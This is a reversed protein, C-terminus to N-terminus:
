DADGEVNDEVDAAPAEAERTDYFVADTGGWHYTLARGHDDPHPMGNQDVGDYGVSYLVCGGRETRYRFRGEPSFEDTPIADLYDPVLADLSEPVEGRELEHLRLAIAVRAADLRTVKAKIVVMGHQWYSPYIRMLSVGALDEEIMTQLEGSRGIAEHMPLAAIEGVLDFYRDVDEQHRNEPMAFALMKAGTYGRLRGAFLQRTTDKYKLREAQLMLDFDPIDDRLREIGRLMARLSAPDDVRYPGPQLREIVREAGIKRIAGDVLYGILARNSAAAFGLNNIRSLSSEIAEADERDAARHMRATEVRSLRRYGTMTPLSLFMLPDHLGDDNPPPVIRMGEFRDIIEALESAEYADLMSDAARRARPEHEGLALEGRLTYYAYALAWSDPDFLVFAERQEEGQPEPLPGHAEVEQERAARDLEELLADGSWEETQPDWGLLELFRSRLAREEDTFPRGDEILEWYLRAYHDAALGEMAGPLPTPDDILEGVDIESFGQAPVLAAPMAALTISVAATIAARRSRVSRARNMM